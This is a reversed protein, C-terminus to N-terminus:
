EEKPRPVAVAAPWAIGAKKVAAQLQVRAAAMRSPPATQSLRVGETLLDVIHTNRAAKSVLAAVAQGSLGTWALPDGMAVSLGLLGAQHALGIAPGTGSPNVNTKGIRDIAHFFTDLAKTAEPGYLIQKTEPGLRRWEAVIGKAKGAWDEPGEVRRLIEDLHARAVKPIEGPANERIKRLYGVGSDDPATLQKYVKQGETGGGRLQKILDVVEYKARTFSRGAKLAEAVKPDAKAAAADVVTQLQAVAKSFLAEGPTKVVADTRAGAKFASLLDEAVSLPVVDPGEILKKLALYVKAKSGLMAAPTSQAVEDLAQFTTQMGEKVAQLETPYQMATSLGISRGEPGLNPGEVQALDGGARTLRRRAVALAGRSADNWTGTELTKGISERIQQGSMQTTGPSALNVEDYVSANPTGRVYRDSVGERTLKGRSYHQADLEAQVQRMVYLEDQTLTGPAGAKLRQFLQQYAPSGFPASEVKVPESAAQAAEATAYEGRAQRGLQRVSGQLTSEVGAGAQEPTVASPHVETGLERGTRRLAAATKATDKSAVLLSGGISRDAMFQGGKVAFNESVMNASVPIGKARLWAVQEASLPAEYETPPVLTSPSPKGPMTPTRPAQGKLAKPGFLALGIGLSEGLARYTQGKEFKDAAEDVGPGVLPTLYDFFHRAARTYDGRQYAAKAKDFPGGQAAGIMRLTNIPGWTAAEEETMPAAGFLAQDAKGIQRAVVEPVLAKGMQRIAPIPNVTSALGRLTDFPGDDPATPAPTVAAPDTSVFPSPGPVPTVANPDTSVFPSPAQAV